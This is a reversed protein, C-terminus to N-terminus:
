EGCSFYVALISLFFAVNKMKLWICITELFLSITINFQGHTVYHIQYSFCLMACAQIKECM